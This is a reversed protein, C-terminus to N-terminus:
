FLFPRFEKQCSLELNIYNKVCFNKGCLFDNINMGTRKNSYFDKFAMTREDHLYIKELKDMIVQLKDTQNIDMILLHQVCEHINLLLSLFAVPFQTEKSLDMILSWIEIDQKWEVCLEEGQLITPQKTFSAM